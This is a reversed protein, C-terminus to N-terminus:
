EDSPEDDESGLDLLPLIRRPGSKAAVLEYVRAFFALQELAELGAGAARAHIAAFARTVSILATVMGLEPSGDFLCLDCVPDEDRHGLPGGGTFEEGCAACTRSRNPVPLEGSSWSSLSRISFSSRSTLPSDGSPRSSGPVFPVSSHRQM